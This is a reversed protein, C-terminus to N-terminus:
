KIVISNVMLFDLIIFFLVEGTLIFCCASKHKFIKINITKNKFRLYFWIRDRGLSVKLTLKSFPCMRSLNTENKGDFQTLKWRYDAGRHKSWRMDEFLKLFMFILGCNWVSVIFFLWPIKIGSPIIQLPLTVRCAVTNQDSTMLHRSM